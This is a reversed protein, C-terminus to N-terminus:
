LVIEVPTMYNVDPLVGMIPADIVFYYISNHTIQITNKKNYNTNKILEAFYLCNELKRILEISLNQYRSVLRMDLKNKYKEIFSDNLKQYRSVNKWHIHDAFRELTERSLNKSKRCVQQWDLYDYAIWIVDEDLQKKCATVWAIQNIKAQAVKKSIRQYKAVDKPKFNQWYRLLIDDDLQKNKVLWKWDILDPFAHIFESNYYRKKIRCNFFINQHEILKDEVIRLSEIEKPKANRLFVDWVVKDKNKVFIYGSLERSSLIHWNLIDALCAIQEDLRCMHTIIDVDIFAGLRWNQSKNALGFDIPVYRNFNQSEHIAM